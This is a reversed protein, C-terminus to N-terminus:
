CTKLRPQIPRSPQFIDRPPAARPERGQGQRQGGGVAPGCVQQCKIGRYSVLLSDGRLLMPKFAGATIEGPLWSIALPHPLGWLFPPLPVASGARPFNIWGTLDNATTKVKGSEDKSEM